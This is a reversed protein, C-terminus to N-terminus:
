IMKVITRRGEAYRRYLTPKSVGLELQLDQSRKRVQVRADDSPFLSEIVRGQQRIRWHGSLSAFDIFGQICEKFISLLALGRGWDKRPFRAAALAEVALSGSLPSAQFDEPGADGRLLLKLLADANDCSGSRGSVSRVRSPATRRATRPRSTPFATKAKRM